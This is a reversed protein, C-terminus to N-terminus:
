CTMALNTIPTIGLVQVICPLYNLNNSIFYSYVSFFNMWSPKSKHGHVIFINLMWDSNKPFAHNLYVSYSQVKGWGEFRYPQFLCSMYISPRSPTRVVPSLSKFHSNTLFYHVWVKFSRSPLKCYIEAVYSKPLFFIVSEIPLM